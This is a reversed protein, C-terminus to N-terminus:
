TMMNGLYEWRKAPAFSDIIIAQFLIQGGCIAYERFPGGIPIINNALLRTYATLIFGTLAWPSLLWALPYPLKFPPQITHTNGKPAPIIIKRNYSIFAYCKRMVWHFPQCSFLPKFVPFSTSIVAFLSDIGYRVEGTTKDILAIENVARQRDI